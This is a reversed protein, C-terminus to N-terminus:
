GRSLSAAAAKMASPAAAIAVSAEAWLSHPPRALV